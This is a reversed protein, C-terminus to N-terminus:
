KHIQQVQEEIVKPKQDFTLYPERNGKAEKNTDNLVVQFTIVKMWKIGTKRQKIFAEHSFPSQTNWKEVISGLDTGALLWSLHPFVHIKVDFCFYILHKLCSISPSEEAM